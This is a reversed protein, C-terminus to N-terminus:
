LPTLTELLDELTRLDRELAKLTRRAKAADQEILEHAQALSELIMTLFVRMQEYQTMEVGGKQSLPIM